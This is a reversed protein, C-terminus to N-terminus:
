SSGCAFWLVPIDLFEQIDVLWFLAHVTPFLDSSIVRFWPLWVCGIEAGNGVFSSGMVKWNRYQIPLWRYSM